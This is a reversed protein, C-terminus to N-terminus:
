RNYRYVGSGEKDRQLVCSWQGSAATFDEFCQAKVVTPGRYLRLAFVNKFNQMRNQKKEVFM